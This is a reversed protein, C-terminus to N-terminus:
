TPRGAAFSQVLLSHTADFTCVAFKNDLVVVHRSGASGAARLTPDVLLHWTEGADGSVLLGSTGASLFDSTCAIVILSGRVAGGRLQFTIDSPNSPHPLGASMNTWTGTAGTASRWVEHATFLFFFGDEDDWLLEKIAASTPQTQANMANDGYAFRRLVNTASATQNAALIYSRGVALLDQRASGGGGSCLTQVGPLGGSADVRVVRPTLTDVGGVWFWGPRFPDARIIQADTVSTLASTDTTATNVGIVSAAGGETKVAMIGIDNAAIDRITAGADTLVDSWSAGGDLSQRIKTDGAVHYIAPAFVSPACAFGAVTGSGTVTDVIPSWNIAEAMDINDLRRTIDNSLWNDWKAPRREGPKWGRAKIAASPEIKTIEGNHPDSAYADDEAWIAVNGAPRTM